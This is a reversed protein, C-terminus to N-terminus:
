CRKQAPAIVLIRNCGITRPLNVGARAAYEPTSPKMRRAVAM